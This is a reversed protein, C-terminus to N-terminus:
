ILKWIIKLTERSVNKNDKESYTECSVYELTVNVARDHKDKIYNRRETCEKLLIKQEDILSQLASLRAKQLANATQSASMVDYAKDISNDISKIKEEASKIRARVNKLDKEANALEIKLEAEIDNLFCLVNDM